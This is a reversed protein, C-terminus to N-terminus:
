RGIYKINKIICQNHMITYTIKYGVRGDGYDIGLIKADSETKTTEDLTNIIGIDLVWVIGNQGMYIDIANVISKNDDAANKELNPFPRVYNYCEDKDYLM